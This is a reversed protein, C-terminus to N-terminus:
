RSLANELLQCNNRMQQEFHNVPTNEPGSALSDLQIVPVGTEAALTELPRPSFQPEGILLVPREKRIHEICELLRAASPAQEEDEQLVDMVDLGASRMMYALSDHQLLVCAGPHAAGLAALRKELDLLDKQLATANNRIAEAQEPCALGLAEAMIGAMQAAAAPSTFVHPNGGHHHDGHGEEHDSCDALLAIGQSCDVKHAEAQALASAFAAELGLGNMLIMDATAVKTLDAPTPAYDHPCGTAAPILLDLRVNELGAVLPRALQWVPYTTALVHVPRSAAQVPLALLSLFALILFSAATRSCYRPTIAHM